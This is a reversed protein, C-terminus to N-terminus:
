QEKTGTLERYEEDDLYTLLVHCQFMEDISRNGFGIWQNSDPNRRNAATNDYTATAHLITGKSLIPTAADDFVYAMQWNFDFDEVAGLVQRSGTENVAELVMSKGRMHMHPQFSIIRAPKELRYSAQHVTIRNAPIDLDNDLLLLGVTIASIEHRPVYGRPYFVFGIRIQDVVQQGSAHYHMNFRLKSGAKLLRGVGDPFIDGYKGMAYESLYTEDRENMGAPHTVFTLAHHLIGRGANSPKTEVAKIYRDETLGTEVIVDGWWDPGKANVVHPPSTVVLDPRGISWTEDESWRIPAPLDADRGFPAGDDVWEVITRLETESLSRDNKFHQVGIRRSANWPPMQRSIVQERISRVWPRADAYTVLSMPAGSGPHHCAQCKAQFIPAVDKAFTVEARAIDGSAVLALALLLLKASSM